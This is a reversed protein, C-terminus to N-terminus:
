VVSQLCNKLKRSQSIIESPNITFIIGALIEEKSAIDESEKAAEQLLKQYIKHLKKLLEVDDLNLIERAFSAKLVELEMTTM